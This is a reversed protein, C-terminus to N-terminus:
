SGEKLMNRLPHNDYRNASNIYRLVTSDASQGTVAKISPISEKNEAAQTIFGSRLSHGGLELSEIGIKTGYLKVTRSVGKDSLKQSKLNGAYSLQMFVHGRQIGAAGIWNELADVPCYRGDIRLIAKSEHEGMQNTKSSPLVVDMGKESFSLHERAVNVLESRRFAGSFGLLLLARNRIGLLTGDAAMDAMDMLNKDTLARKSVSRAPIGKRIGEIVIKVTPHDTPSPLENSGFYWKIAALRTTLTSASIPNGNKLYGGKSQDRADHNVYLSNIGKCQESLFNAVTNHSAATADLGNLTCWTDFIRLSARYSKQSSTSLSKKGFEISYPSLEANDLAALGVPQELSPLVEQSGM